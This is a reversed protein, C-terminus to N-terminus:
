KDCIKKQWDSLGKDILTLANEYDTVLGGYPDPVEFGGWKGILFVKGRAYPYLQEIKKQHLSEMTLILDSDIVMQETLQKAKHGSIDIHRAQLMSKSLPAASRNVMAALGASSVQTTIHNNAFWDKLLGEAMPSRCINGICVILIRNFM